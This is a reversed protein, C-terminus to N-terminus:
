KEKLFGVFAVFSLPKFEGRLRSAPAPLNTWPCNWSGIFLSMDCMLINGEAEIIRCRQIVVSVFRAARGRSRIPDERFCWRIGQCTYGPVCPVFRARPFCIDRLCRISNSRKECVTMM